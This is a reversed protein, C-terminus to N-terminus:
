NKDPVKVSWAKQLRKAAEAIERESLTAYGLIVAPGQHVEEQPERSEQNNGIEYESLPYVKVGEARASM